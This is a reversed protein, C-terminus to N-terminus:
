RKVWTRTLKTEQMDQINSVDIDNEKNEPFELNLIKSTRCLFYYNSRPLLLHQVTNIEAIDHKDKPIM